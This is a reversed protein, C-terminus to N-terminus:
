ARTNCNLAYLVYFRIYQMHLGFISAIRVLLQLELWLLKDYQIKRTPVLQIKGLKM